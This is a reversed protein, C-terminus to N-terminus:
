KLYGLAKFGARVALFERRPDGCELTAKLIDPNRMLYAVRKDHTQASEYTLNYCHRCEFYKAGPPLYLVGVRRGCNLSPCIFWWRQGGFRCPTSVLEVWYNYNTKEGTERDRIDYYFEIYNRVGKWPDDIGLVVKIEVNGTEMEGKTWRVNGSKIGQSVLYGWKKIFYTELRKCEEVTRKKRFWRGM